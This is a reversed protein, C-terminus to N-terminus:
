PKDFELYRQYDPGGMRDSLHKLAHAAVDYKQYLEHCIVALKRLEMENLGELHDLSRVYLCDSWLLRGTHFTKEVCPDFAGYRQHGLAHFDLLSFGHAQMKQDVYSFILEGKYVECFEVELQCFLTRHLSKEAGQLVDSTKGQVDIKLFDIPEEDLGQDALAEDLTRTQVESTEITEINPALFSFNQALQLNPELLSSTPQKRALHFTAPKGDGIFNPLIHVESKLGVETSKVKEVRPAKKDTPDFGIILSPSFKTLPAYVHDEFALPEAGVDVITFRDVGSRIVDPLPMQKKMQARAHVFHPTYQESIGRLAMARLGDHLTGGQTFIDALASRMDLDSPRDFLKQSIYDAVLKVLSPMLNKQVLEDNHFSKEVGGLEVLERQLDIDLQFDERAAVLENCRRTLLRNEERLRRIEKFPFLNEPKFANPRHKKWQRKLRRNVKTLFNQANSTQENSNDNMEYVLRWTSKLNTIRTLNRKSSRPALCFM